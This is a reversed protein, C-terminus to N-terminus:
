FKILLLLCVRQLVNRSGSEANCIVVVGRGVNIAVGSLMSTCERQMLLVGFM